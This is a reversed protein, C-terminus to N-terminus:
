GGGTNQGTAGVEGGGGGPGGGGANGGAGANNTAAAARANTENSYTILPRALGLAYNALYEAATYQLMIFDNPQVILRGGIRSSEANLDIAIKVQEGNPLQRVVLVRTPDVIGGEGPSRFNRAAGDTGAPGGASGRALAMAEIVTLDHDRPLPFVGGPLLGGTLFVQDDRSKLYVVDGENLIVDAPGFPLPQGPRVRLPFRVCDHAVLPFSAGALHRNDGDVPGTPPLEEITRSRLVWVENFADIGPLGGSAVLAHLVDNEHSPLDVVLASGRKTYPPSRHSYYSPAGPSNVDERFVLIRHVAPKVLALQVQARNPELIKHEVTYARRIAATAQDLTLGTLRLTGIFPLELSGDESLQSPVGVMPTRILGSPVYPNGIGATNTYLPNAEAGAPPVIGEIYVGLTDNPGIVHVPTPQQALLRFDIPVKGSQPECFLAPPLLDVPVADCASTIRHIHGACGPLAFSVIALLAAASRMSVQLTWRRLTTTATRTPESEM